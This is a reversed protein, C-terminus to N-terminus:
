VVRHRARMLRAAVWRGAMKIGLDLRVKLSLAHPTAEAAGLM